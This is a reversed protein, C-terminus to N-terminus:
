ANVKVPDATPPRAPASQATAVTAATAAVVIGLAGLTWSDPATLPQGRFAQWTTVLFPGGYGLAAATVLRTRVPAPRLRPWRRVAAALGMALLPLFQLAHIGVFHPM